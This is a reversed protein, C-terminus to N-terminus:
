LKLLRSSRTVKSELWVHTPAPFKDVEEFVIDRVAKADVLKTMGRLVSLEAGQVDMKLIGISDGAQILSDLKRSEVELSFGEKSPSDSSEIWATGRNKKFWDGCRLPAKGDMDGLAAEHLLIAGNSGDGKWREANERLSAFVLPQPEFSLVRGQKGCRKALISTMYGINAGADVALDGPDTLSWLAETVGLEYLGQNALNYGIDEQPDITLPM